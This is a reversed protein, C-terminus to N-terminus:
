VNILVSPYSKLIGSGSLVKLSKGAVLLYLKAPAVCEAFCVDYAKLRLNQLVLRYPSTPESYKGYQESEVKYSCPLIVSKFWSYGHLKRQGNFKLALSVYLKQILVSEDVPESLSFLM